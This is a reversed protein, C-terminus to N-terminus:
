RRKEVERGLRDAANAAAAVLRGPQQIHRDNLAEDAFVDHVIADGIVPLHDDIFAVVQRRSAKLLHDTSRLRSEYQAQGRRDGPFIAVMWDDEHLATGYPM